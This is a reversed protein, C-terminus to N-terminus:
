FFPWHLGRLKSLGAIKKTECINVILRSFNQALSTNQSQLTRYDSSNSHMQMSLVLEILLKQVLGIFSTVTSMCANTHRSVLLYAILLKAKLLQDYHDSYHSHQYALKVFTEIKSVINSADASIFYDPLMDHTPNRRCGFFSNCFNSSVVNSHM